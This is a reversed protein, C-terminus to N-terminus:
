AHLSGLEEVVFSWFDHMFGDDDEDVGEGATGSSFKGELCRQVVATYITGVKSPLVKRCADLLHGRVDQEDAIHKGKGKLDDGCMKDVSRWLGIECLLVGLSYIDNKRTSGQAFNPHRYHDLRGPGSDPREMSAEGAQDPRAFSFGILYPSTIYETSSANVDSKKRFFLINQSRINKHLWESSHLLFLASALKQALRFRNGLPVTLNGRLVQHLSEPRELGQAPHQFVFGDLRTSNTPNQLLGVCPLLRFEDTNIKALHNFLLYLAKLRKLVEMRQDSTLSQNYQKYDIVVEDTRGAARPRFASGRIAVGLLKETDRVGALEKPEVTPIGATGVTTTLKISKAAACLALLQQSSSSLERLDDAGAQPVLGSPLSQQLMRLERFSLFGELSDNFYKLRELLKEFKPKDLTVSLAKRTSKNSRDHDAQRITLRELAEEITQAEEHSSGGEAIKIGYEDEMRGLDQTIKRIEMFINLIIQVSQAPQGLLKRCDKDQGLKFHDVWDKFRCQEVRFKVALYGDAPRRNAWVESLFVFGDLASKAGAVLSVAGLGLGAATAPDM